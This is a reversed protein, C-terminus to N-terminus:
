PCFASLGSARMDSAIRDGSLIQWVQVGAAGPASAVAHPEPWDVRHAEAAGRPGAPLTIPAGTALAVHLVRQEVTTCLVGSASDFLRHGLVVASEEIARAARPLHRRRAARPSLSRLVGRDPIRPRGRARLDARSRAAGPGHLGHYYAVTFHGVHDVEWAPVSGRCSEIWPNTMAQLSADAAPM